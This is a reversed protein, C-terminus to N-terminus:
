KTIMKIIDESTKGNIDDYSLVTNKNLLKKLTSSSITWGYGDKYRKSKLVPLTEVWKCGIRRPASPHVLPFSIKSVDIKKSYDKLKLILISIESLKKDSSTAFMISNLQIRVGNLELTKIAQLLRKGAETIAGTTATCAAAVNYYLEITRTKQLVKKSNIMSQPIGQIYNSVHPAYGIVDSFSIRRSTTPASVKINKLVEVAPTYGYLFLERAENYDKTGRFASNKSESSLDSCCQFVKNVSRTEITDLLQKISDYKEINVKM